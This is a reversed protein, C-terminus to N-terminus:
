KVYDAALCLNEYSDDMAQFAPILDQKRVKEFASQRLTEITLKPVHKLLLYSYQAILNCKSKVDKVKCILDIVKEYDGRNITLVILSQDFLEFDEALEDAMEALKVHQQLLQMM